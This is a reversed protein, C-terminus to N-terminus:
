KSGVRSVEQGADSAYTSGQLGAKSMATVLARAESQSKFPGVVMRNTAKYPVVSASQGKFVDPAKEKLKKWTGPLGAENAGTAVQVWVRAPNRKAAAAKEALEKAAEDKALKAAAEAALKKQAAVRASKLQAATPLPAALSEQEPVISAMIASLGFPKAVQKVPETTIVAPTTPAPVPVLPSIPLLVSVPVSGSPSLAQSALPTLGADHRSPGASVPSNVVEVVKVPMEAPPLQRVESVSTPSTM